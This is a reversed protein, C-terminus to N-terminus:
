FATSDAYLTADLVVVPPRWSLGQIAADVYAKDTLVKWDAVSSNATTFKFYTQLNSGGSNADTRLYLTGIPSADQYSTDGGPSGSGVLVSANSAGNEINLGQLVRFLDLAM